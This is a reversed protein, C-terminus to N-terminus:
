NEPLGAQIAEVAADIERRTMKPRGVPRAERPVAGLAIQAAYLLKAGHEPQFIDLLMAHAVCAIFGRINAHSTLYPMSEAYASTAKKLAGLHSPSKAREEAYMQHYASLCNQVAANLTTAPAAAAPASGAPQQCSTSM